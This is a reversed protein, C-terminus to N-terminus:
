RSPLRSIRCLAEETVPGRHNQTGGSGRGRRRCGCREPPCMGEGNAGCLPFDDSEQEVVGPKPHYLPVDASAQALLTGELRYLAVKTASTGLDVGILYRAKM